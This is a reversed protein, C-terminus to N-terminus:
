PVWEIKSFKQPHKQRGDHGEYLGGYPLDPSQYLKMDRALTAAMGSFDAEEPPTSMYIREAEYFRNLIKTATSPGATSMKKARKM